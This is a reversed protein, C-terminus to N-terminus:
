KKLKLKVYFCSLHNMNKVLWSKGLSIRSSRNSTLEFWTSSLSRYQWTGSKPRSGVRSLEIMNSSRDWYNWRTIALNHKKQIYWDINQALAFMLKTELKCPVYNLNRIILNMMLHFASCCFLRVDQVSFIVLTPKM